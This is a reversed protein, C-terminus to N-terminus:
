ALRRRTPRPHGARPEGGSRTTLAAADDPCESSPRDARLPPGAWDEMLAHEVEDVCLLVVPAPMCRRSLLLEDRDLDM